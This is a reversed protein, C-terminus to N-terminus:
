VKFINQEILKMILDRKELSISIEHKNNLTIYGGESKNIETIFNLNIINSKNIRIFNACPELVEEFQGLNKSVIFQQENKLIVDTYSRDAKMCVLDDLDILKVGQGVTIAIKKPCNEELNNKLASIIQKNGTKEKRKTIRNVAKVLHDANIPKLLYDTASLKFADVAFESYATVFVIDFLIEDVDLFNLIELGSYEPMEIDLFVIDPKHKKIAEIGIPLDGCCDLITVNSCCDLLMAKLLNQARKEDDIIIANLNM